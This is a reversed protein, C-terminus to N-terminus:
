ARAARAVAIGKLPRARGAPGAVSDIVMEPPVAPHALNAERFKGTRVLMGLAGAARVGGVETRM